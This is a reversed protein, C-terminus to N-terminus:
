ALTSSGHAEPISEIDRMSELPMHNISNNVTEIVIVLVLVLVIFIPLAFV